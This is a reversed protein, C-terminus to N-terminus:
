LNFGLLKCNKFLVENFVTDYIKASSLDCDLFECDEFTISSLDSYSFICDAFTCEVYEDKPLPEKTYNVKKFTKNEIM